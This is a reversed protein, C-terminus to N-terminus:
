PAAEATPRWEGSEARRALAAVDASSAREFRVADGPTLLSPPTQAPNFLRVATRGLLNWGGPSEVPYIVTLGVAIAVTRGPVALRPDTRRPLDIEPPLEGLFPAGPLFGLMFVHHPQGVHRAVVAEESLGTRAAVDALDPGDEGGYATPFRWIRRPAAIPPADAADTRASRATLAAVVEDYDVNLADLRVLLSRFTPKTELVGPVPDAQLSAELALVRQSLELDVRDGFEVVLAADGAALVRPPM